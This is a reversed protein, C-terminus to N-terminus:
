GGSIRKKKGRRSSGRGGSVGSGTGTKTNKRRSEQKESSLNRTSRQSTRTGNKKESEDGSTAMSQVIETLFGNMEEPSEIEDMLWAWKNRYDIICVDLVRDIQRYFESNLATLEMKLKTEFGLDRKSEDESVDNMYERIATQKETVQNYFSEVKDFEDALRLSLGPGIARVQIKLVRNGIKINAFRDARKKIEFM